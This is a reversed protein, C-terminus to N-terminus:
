VEPFHHFNIELIGTCVVLVLSLTNFFKLKSACSEVVEQKTPEKDYLKSYNNVEGYWKNVARSVAEEDSVYQNGACAFINEGCVNKPEHKM